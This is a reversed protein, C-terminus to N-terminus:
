TWIRLEVSYLQHASHLNGKNEKESEQPLMSHSCARRNPRTFRTECFHALSRGLRSPCLFPSSAVIEWLIENTSQESSPFYWQSFFSRGSILTSQYSALSAVATHWIQNEPPDSKNWGEFCVPENSTIRAFLINRASSLRVSNTTRTSPFSFWTCSFAIRWTWVSLYLINKNTIAISLLRRSYQTTQVVKWLSVFRSDFYHTRILASVNFNLTGMSFFFMDTILFM